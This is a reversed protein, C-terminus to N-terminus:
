PCATLGCSVTTPGGTIPGTLFRFNDLLLTSDLLPDGSDWLRFVLEVVSYPAVPVETHLWGTSAGGINPKAVTVPACTSEDADYGTELLGGPGLTCELERGARAEATRCVSLLGTNVGIPDGNEDLVVNGDKIGRPKPSMLAVFFDNYKGCVFDPYEYSFFMSDFAIGTANTPVRLRLELGVDNYAPVGSSVTGKPCRKSDRPFGEPPSEGGSWVGGDLQQSGFWDCEPTYDREDNADRAVGTSLVLLRKGERPEIRGFRETILAQRPDELQKDGNLRLWGARLLGTNASSELARATCLGLAAVVDDTDDSDDPDLEGDCGPGANLADGDRCDDDLGNGPIELAGPGRSPDLDDCDGRAASFHDCDLDPEGFRDRCGADGGDGGDPDGGDRTGGDLGPGWAADIEVVRVEAEDDCALLALLSASVACRILPHM